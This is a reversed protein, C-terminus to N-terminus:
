LCFTLSGNPFFSSYSKVGPKLCQMQHSYAHILSFGLLVTNLKTIAYSPLNMRSLDNSFTAGLFCGKFWAKCLLCSKVVVYPLHTYTHTYIYPTPTHFIKYWHLLLGAPRFLFNHTLFLECSSNEEEHQYSSPYILPILLFQFPFATQPWATLSGPAGRLLFRMCLLPLMVIEQCPPPM